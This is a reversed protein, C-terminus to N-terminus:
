GCPAIMALSSAACALAPLLARQKMPRALWSGANTVCAPMGAALRQWNLPEGVGVSHSRILNLQLTALASEDIRTSALKGFGTNVGYVPASGSAAAQVIAASHEIGARAGPDLALRIGGAHIARLDDLTLAGPRLTQIRLDSM